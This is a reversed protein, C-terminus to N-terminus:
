SSPTDLAAQGRDARVSIPNSESVCFAERLAQDATFGSLAKVLANTQWSYQERVHSSDSEYGQFGGISLISFEDKKRARIQQQLAKSIRPRDWLWRELHECFDAPEVLADHLDAL